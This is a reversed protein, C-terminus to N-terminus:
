VPIEISWASVMHVPSPSAPRGPVAWRVCHWLESLGTALVDCNEMHTQQPQGIYIVTIAAHSRFM